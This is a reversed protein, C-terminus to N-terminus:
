SHRFFVHVIAINKLLITQSPYKGYIRKFVHGDVQKIPTRKCENM